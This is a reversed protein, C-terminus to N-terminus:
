AHPFVSSRINEIGQTKLSRTRNKFIWSLSIAAGHQLDLQTKSLQFIGKTQIWYCEKVIKLSLMKPPHPTHFQIRIVFCVLASLLQATIYRFHYRAMAKQQREKGGLGQWSSICELLIQQHQMNLFSYYHIRADKQTHTISLSIFYTRM